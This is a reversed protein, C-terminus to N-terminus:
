HNWTVINLEILEEKNILQFVKIFLFLGEDIIQYDQPIIICCLLSFHKIRKIFLSKVKSQIGESIIPDNM